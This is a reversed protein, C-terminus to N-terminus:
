ASGPEPLVWVAHTLIAPCSAPSGLRNPRTGAHGLFGCFDPVTLSDPRLHDAPSVRGLVPVDAARAPGTWCRRPDSCEARQRATRGRELLGM